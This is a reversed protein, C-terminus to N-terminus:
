LDDYCVLGREPPPQLQIGPLHSVDAQEALARAAMRAEQVKMPEVGPAAIPGQSVCQSTLAYAEMGWRAGHVGWGPVKLGYTATLSQSAMCADQVNM